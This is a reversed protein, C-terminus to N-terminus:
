AQGLEADTQENKVHEVGFTNLLYIIPKKLETHKNIQNENINLYNEYSGMNEIYSDKKLIYFIPSSQENIRLNVVLKKSCSGGSFLDDLLWFLDSKPFIINQYLM